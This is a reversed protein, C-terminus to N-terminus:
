QVTICSYATRVENITFLAMNYVDKNALFATAVLSFFCWVCLLFLCVFSLSFVVSLDPLSTFLTVM